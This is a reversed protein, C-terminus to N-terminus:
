RILTIDGKFVQTSGDFYRVRIMYIFVGTNMYQGNFTGDWGYAPYNPIGDKVQCVLEGWRDFVLLEEISEVASNSYVMFVDNVNDNNPSFANPIYIKNEDTVDIFM